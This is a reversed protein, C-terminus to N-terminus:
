RYNKPSKQLIDNLLRIPLRILFVDLYSTLNVKINESKKVNRKKGNKENESTNRDKKIKKELIKRTKGSSKKKVLVLNNEQLFILCFTLTTQM